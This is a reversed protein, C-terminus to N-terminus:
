KGKLKLYMLAGACLCATALGVVVGSIPSSGTSGAFNAPKLHGIGYRAAWEIHQAAAESGGCARSANMLKQAARTYSPNGMVKCVASAVTEETVWSEQYPNPARETGTPIRGILEAVGYEQMLRANLPQDGFFPIAVIPKGATLTELTGGWGCHTIVAKVAPDQLLEAQPTWKSIFFNPDDKVPLHKQQEEKLSWVVRYDAKKLGKYLVSVQWDHLKALSGTTVYLVGKPSDRLFKFLEGHDKKLRDRLDAAPPLVPGTVVLNPYVPTTIDLGWITQVLVVAGRGVHHRLKEGQDLSQLCYHFGLMKPM